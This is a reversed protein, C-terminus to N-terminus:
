AAQEQQVVAMLREGIFRTYAPPIAQCLESLTMWDIGMALRAQEVSFEDVGRDHKRRSDRAGKGYIGITRKRNRVHGGYVGICDRAGHRCQPALMFVSSEFLRHRRLEADDVGLGFM